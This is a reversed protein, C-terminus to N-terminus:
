KPATSCWTTLAHSHKARLPKWHKQPILQRVMDGMDRYPYLPTHHAWHPPPPPGDDVPSVCNGRYAGAVESVSDEASRAPMAGVDALALTVTGRPLAGGWWRWLRRANRLVIRDGHDEIMEGAHVGMLNDRIIVYPYQKKKAAM